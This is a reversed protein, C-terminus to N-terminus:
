TARFAYPPIEDENRYTSVGVPLGIGHGVILYFRDDYFKSYRHVGGALPFVSPVLGTFPASATSVVRLYARAAYLYLGIQM